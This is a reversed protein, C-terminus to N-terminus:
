LATINVSLQARSPHQAGRRRNNGDLINCRLHAPAHNGPDNNDKNGDLHQVSFSWPHPWQLAVDIPEGCLCCVAGPQRLRRSTARWLGGTRGKSRPGETQRRMRDRAREADSPPRVHVRRRRARCATSCYKKTKVDTEFASRCVRCIVWRNARTALENTEATDGVVGGRRIARCPRCMRQGAPLSGEALPMLSGCASCPGRAM